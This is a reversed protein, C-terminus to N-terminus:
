MKSLIIKGLDTLKVVEKEEHNDYKQELFGWETLEWYLHYMKQWLDNDVDEQRFLEDLPIEITEYQKKTTFRKLQDIHTETLVDSIHISFKGTDKKYDVITM